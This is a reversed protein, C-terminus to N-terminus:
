RPQIQRLHRAVSWRAAFWGILAGALVIVAIDQTGLRYVLHSRQYLAALEAMPQQLLLATISLLILSVMAGLIGYFCGYYLFPRRVFSDTGGVLKTIEIEHRRNFILLKVTNGVILILAIALLASFAMSLKGAVELIANFRDTWDLDLRITEIGDIKGLQVQLELLHEARAHGADPMVVISHPLPNSDLFQLEYDLGSIARFEELAQMPTILEALQVSPHLRIENFILLAEPPTIDTQLFVSM